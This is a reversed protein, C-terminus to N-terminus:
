ERWCAMEGDMKRERSVGNGEMAEGDMEPMEEHRRRKVGGQCQGEGRNAVSATGEDEGCARYQWTVVVLL